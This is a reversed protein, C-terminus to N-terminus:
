HSLQLPENSRIVLHKLTHNTKKLKIYDVYIDWDIFDLHPLFQNKVLSMVSEKSSYVLRQHWLFASHENQGSCKLSFDHM